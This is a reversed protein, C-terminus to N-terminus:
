TTETNNVATHLTPHRRSRLYLVLVIVFLVFFVACLAGPVSWAPVMSDGQCNDMKTEFFHRPTYFKMNLFNHIFKTWFYLQRAKLNRRSTALSPTLDFDMYHAEKSYRRWIPFGNGRPTMHGVSSTMNIPNPNGTKAFNGWATMIALSLQKEDESPPTDFLTEDFVDGFVYYLEDMHVANTYSPWHTFGSKHSLFYLFVDTFRAYQSAAQLCSIVFGQDTLATLVGRWKQTVNTTKAEAGLYEFKVIERLLPNSESLRDLYTDVLKHDLHFLQKELALVFAYEDNLVGLMIPVDASINLEKYSDKIFIGDQVPALPQFFHGNVGYHEKYDYFANLLQESTKSRLCSLYKATSPGHCGIRAAMATSHGASVDTQKRTFTFAATIPPLVGSQVIARQFLGRATGSVLFLSTSVGGVSNGFLTILSANGGFAGINERVWRLAELQDLLFYNGPAEEDGTSFLGFLSLRYNFTVVIVQQYVALISGDFNMGSGWEWAGGHIYVMVPLLDESPGKRITIGPVYINLTLCDESMTNRPFRKEIYKKPFIRDRVELDQVCMDGFESASLVGDWPDMRVPAAFRLEGIPPKAYPIGLFRVLDGRPSTIVQGEIDGYKTKVLMLAEGMVPVQYANLLLLSILLAM